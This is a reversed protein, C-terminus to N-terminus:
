KCSRGQLRRAARDMALRRHQRLEHDFCRRFRCPHLWGALFIYRGRRHPQRELRGAPCPLSGHRLRAARDMALRRHQRLEHAFCRIFRCQHLWGALFRHLGRRHPQREPPSLSFKCSGGQLRRAARDMALHRHQRLEHSFCRIFRCQHLWGTLVIHLGRRHPQREPPGAAPLWHLRKKVWPERFGM